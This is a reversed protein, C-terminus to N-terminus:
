SGGRTKGFVNIEGDDYIFLAVALQHVPMVCYHVYNNNKCVNFVSDGCHAM